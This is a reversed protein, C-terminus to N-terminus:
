ANAAEQRALRNCHAPSIHFEYAVQKAIGGARMRRVIEARQEPTLGNRDNIGRYKLKMPYSRHVGFRKAVDAEKEGADLADIIAIKTERSLHRAM